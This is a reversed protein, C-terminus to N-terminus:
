KGSQYRYAAIQYRWPVVFEGARRPHWMLTATMLEAVLSSAASPPASTSADRASTVDSRLSNEIRGPSRNRNLAPQDAGQWAEVSGSGPVSRGADPVGEEDVIFSIM